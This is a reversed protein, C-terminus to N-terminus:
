SSIRSRSRMKGGFLAEQDTDPKQGACDAAFDGGASEGVQGIQHDLRRQIRNQRLHFRRM